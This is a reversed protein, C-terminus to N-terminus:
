WLISHCLYTLYLCLKEFSNKRSFSLRRLDTFYSFHSVVLWKLMTAYLVLVHIHGSSLVYKSGLFNAVFFYSITLFIFFNQFTTLLQFVSTTLEYKSAIRPFASIM